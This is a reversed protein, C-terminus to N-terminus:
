LRYQRTQCHFFSQNLHATNRNIPSHTLGTARKFYRAFHCDEQYGAMTAVKHIPMETDTLLRSMFGIREQTLQKKISCELEGHFQENLTRHSVNTPNVDDM